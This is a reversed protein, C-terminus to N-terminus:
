GIWWLLIQRPVMKILDEKRTTFHASATLLLMVALAWLSAGHWTQFLPVGLVGLGRFVLTAIILVMFVLM